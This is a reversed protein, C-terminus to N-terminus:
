LSEIDYFNTINYKNYPTVRGSIRGLISERQNQVFKGMQGCTQAGLSHGTCHVTSLDAGHFASAVAGGCAGVLRLNTVAMDYLSAAGTSWDVMIVNYDPMAETQIYVSIFVACFLCYILPYKGTIEVPIRIDPYGFKSYRGSDSIVYRLVRM